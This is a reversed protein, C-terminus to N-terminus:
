LDSTASSARRPRFQALNRAPRADVAKLYGELTGYVVLPPSRERGCRSSSRTRGSSRATKGDWAIGGIHSEGQPPYMSYRRASMPSARPTTSRSRSTTWASTTPRCTSCNPSKTLLSGAPQETGLAAPCIGKTNKDEGGKETSYQDVVKPRGYTPSSKNMDVGSTWNVKPDSQPWWSNAPRVM